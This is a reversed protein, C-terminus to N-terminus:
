NLKINKNNGVSDKYSLNYKSDIAYSEGLTYVEIKPKIKILYFYTTSGDDTDHYKEGIMFQSSGIEPIFKVGDLNLNNIKNQSLIAYTEPSINKVDNLSYLHNELDSLKECKSQSNSRLCKSFYSSANPILVKKFNNQKSSKLVDESINTKEFGGNVM